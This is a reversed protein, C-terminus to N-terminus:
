YFIKKNVFFCDFFKKPFNFMLNKSLWKQSMIFGKFSLSLTGHSKKKKRKWCNSLDIVRQSAKGTNM